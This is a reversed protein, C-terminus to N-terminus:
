TSSQRIADTSLGYNFRRSPEAPQAAGSRTKGGAALKPRRQFPSPCKQAFGWACYCREVTNRQTIGVCANCQQTTAKRLLRKTRKRWKNIGLQWRLETLM